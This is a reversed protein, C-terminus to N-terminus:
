AKRRFAFQGAPLEDPSSPEREKRKGNVYAPKFPRQQAAEIEAQSAGKARMRSREYIRDKQVELM